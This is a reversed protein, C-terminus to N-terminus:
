NSRQVTPMTLLHNRKSDLVGNPGVLQHYAQYQNEWEDLEDDFIQGRQIYSYYQTLLQSRMQAKQASMLIKLQKAFTMCAKICFGTMAFITPVGLLGFWGAIEKISNAM